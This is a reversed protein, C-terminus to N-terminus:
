HKKKKGKKKKSKKHKKAKKQQASSRREGAVGQEPASGSPSSGEPPAGSGSDSPAPGGSSSPPPTGSSSAAPAESKLDSFTRFNADFGIKDLSDSQCKAPADAGHQLFSARGHAEGGKKGKIHIYVETAAGQFELTSALKVGASIFEIYGEGPTTSNSAVCSLSGKGAVVANVPGSFAKGNVTGDCTSGKESTFTYTDDKPQQGIPKGFVTTGTISCSGSFTNDAASATAPLVMAACVLVAACLKRM